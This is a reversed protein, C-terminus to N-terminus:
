KVRRDLVEYLDRRLRRWHLDRYYTMYGSVATRSVGTCRSIAEVSSPGHERLHEIIQKVQGETDKEHCAPCSGTVTRTLFPEGCSQCILEQEPLPLEKERCHRIIAKREELEELTPLYPAANTM